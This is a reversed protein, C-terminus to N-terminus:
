WDCLFFANKYNFPFNSRTGFKVGTPSSLGVDVVSPLSDPYYAPWKTDGERFGFEAGSTVHLIRTPRYWPLGVDWEMDSDFAFLEGDTNFDIDYTNRMGGAFLEWKTGNEDTKLVYGYPVKLTDFFTAVPDKIRPLLHDEGYNRHPSDPAIGDILGTSNGHVIFISKGDPGLVLAHAGHEGAGGPVKKWLKVDDLEDDGNTDRLRYIGRGDPGDGSFYLSDFAWLMGMAGSVKVKPWETKAVQGKDNLTVRMLGGEPAAQQPSIYLRGKADVVM